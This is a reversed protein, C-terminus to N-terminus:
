KYRHFSYFIDTVKSNLRLFICWSEVCDHEFVWLLCTCIQFMDWTGFFHLSISFMCKRVGWVNLKLINSLTCMVWNAGHLLILWSGEAAWVKRSMGLLPTNMVDGCQGPAMQPLRTRSMASCFQSGISNTKEDFQGSRWINTIKM